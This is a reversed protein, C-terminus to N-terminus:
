ILFLVAATDVQCVDRAIGVYINREKPIKLIGETKALCLFRVRDCGQRSLMKSENNDIDM